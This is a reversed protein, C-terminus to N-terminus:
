DIITEMDLGLMSFLYKCSTVESRANAPCRRRLHFMLGPPSLWRGDHDVAIDPRRPTIGHRLWVGSRSFIYCNLQQECQLFPATKCLNVHQVVPEYEVNQCSVHM